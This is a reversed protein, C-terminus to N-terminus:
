EEPFVDAVALTLGPLVQGGTLTDATGYFAVPQGPTYVEVERREPRVIWVVVGAALYNALKVQLQQGSAATAPFDVEVALDPPNPNFGEKALEPQKAKSIFAVDPAYRDEGVIYGGAEGTVHGEVGSERLFLQIFFGIVMSIKSAYANSPVEVVEGGILELIGDASAAMTDFDTPTTRAITM